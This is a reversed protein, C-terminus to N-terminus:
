GEVVNHGEDFWLVYFVNELRAGFVRRRETARVGVLDVDPAMRTPWIDSNKLSSKAYKTANLGTKM